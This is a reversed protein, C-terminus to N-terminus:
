GRRRGLTPRNLILNLVFAQKLGAPDRMLRAVETVTVQARAATAAAATPADAATFSGLDQQVKEAVGHALHSQAQQLVRGEQMHEALHQRVGSGLSTSGPGKRQSIRGGPRPGGFVSASETSAASEATPPAPRKARNKGRSRPKTPGEEAVLVELEDAQGDKQGMVNKLFRNIEAQLDKEVRKGGGAQPQPRAGGGVPKQNGNFVNWLWSVFAIVLFLISIETGAALIPLPNFM